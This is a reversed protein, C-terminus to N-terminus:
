LSDLRLGEALRLGMMLRDLWRDRDSALDGDLQGGLAQYQKVWAAYEATTRPRHFRQHQTYSAAGLGFGYFPRNEWYVRNHRCQFGPRAYNSVEYHDYGAQTLQAQATRYMTATMEDTPLPSEGATYRRQFVTGPEVTLDDISLHQPACAIAAALSAQWDALIQHPLGSILDLSWVPMAVAHLADIARYVDVVRHTRGCAELQADQFSQVGLSVRNVGVQRLAHLTGQDFTGPDMEMSIEATTALGFQAALTTLIQEVQAVSLLSPTGGGFFVTELAQGQPPTATIEQCLTDVYTQIRPSTEGRARDGAVAIPFDCYFCRRRCFPIHIYASQPM